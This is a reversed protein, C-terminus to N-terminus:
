MQGIVRHLQGLGVLSSNFVIAVWGVWVLLPDIGASRPQRARIPPHLQWVLWASISAWIAYTFDNIPGFIPFGSYLLILTVLSIVATVFLSIAVLGTRIRDFQMADWTRQAYVKM